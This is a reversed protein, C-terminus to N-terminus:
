RWMVGLSLTGGTHPWYQRRVIAKGTDPEFRNTDNVCGTWQGIAEAAVYVSSRPGLVYGWEARVLGAAGVGQCRAIPTSADPFTYSTELTAPLPDADM